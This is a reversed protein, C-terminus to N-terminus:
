SVYPAKNIWEADSILDVMSVVVSRRSITRWPRPRHMSLAYRSKILQRSTMIPSRVVTWKLQSQALLAIHREGDILVKRAVVGLFTHMMRHVISLVDGPARAEAGTLSVIRAVNHHNMSVIINRMGATLIDKNPTGWSGLASVVAMSGAIAADVDSPNYIDGQIIQLTDSVPLQHSNHVFAVVQYGRTLLEEVIRSGVQGNAGFVTVQDTM